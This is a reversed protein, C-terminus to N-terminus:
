GRTGHPSRGEYRKSNRELLRETMEDCQEFFCDGCVGWDAIAENEECKNCLNDEDTM